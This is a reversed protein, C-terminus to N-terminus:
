GQMLAALFRLQSTQKILLGQGRTITVNETSYLDFGAAGESGRSPCTAKESLLKVYLFGNKYELRRFKEEPLMIVNDNDIDMNEIGDKRSLTDARKNEIGCHL